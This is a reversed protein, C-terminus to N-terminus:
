LDAESVSGIKSFSNCSEYTGLSKVDEFIFFYFCMLNIVDSTNYYQLHCGSSKKKRRAVDTNHETKLILRQTRSQANM